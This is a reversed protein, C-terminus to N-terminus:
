GFNQIPTGSWRPRSAFMFPPVWTQKWALRRLSTSAKVGHRQCDPPVSLPLGPRGTDRSNSRRMRRRGPVVVLDFGTTVTIRYDSVGQDCVVCVFVYSKLPLGLCTMSFQNARPAFSAGTRGSRPPPFGSRARRCTRRACRNLGTSVSWSSGSRTTSSTLCAGLMARSPRAARSRTCCKKALAPGSPRRLTMDLWWSLGFALGPVRWPASRHRLSGACRAAHLFGAIGGSGSSPTLCINHDTRDGPRM